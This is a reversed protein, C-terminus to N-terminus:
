VSKMVPRPNVRIEDPVRIVRIEEGPIILVRLGPPM